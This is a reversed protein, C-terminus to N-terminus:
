ILRPQNSADDEYEVGLHDYARRTAMRGRPTRDLFGLQLLYPECVDEITDSEESISAALTDLGVPGGGFKEMISQLVRMDMSDLGIRDVELQALATQAVELTIVNDAVVQAYDRVRRLLRNAVRPTGRARLAIERIGGPEATIDLIRASREVITRMDEEGYFELRYVSGFRDRLPSSVMGYRTTAGILTFPQIALNMSRANLGKDIVWSVFFDEMASYLVEEVLRSLRHVEDVFLIDDKRLQTLLAVMDGPREIAPGSTVRIRVGMETAVINALTTKGLGPPGYVLLHDLPEGRQRAATVSIQLNGKVTAQGVYEDLRRPRLSTDLTHDGDQQNGSVIREDM